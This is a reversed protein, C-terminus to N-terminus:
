CHSGSKRALEEERSAAQLRFRPAHTILVNLHNYQYETEGNGFVPDERSILYKKGIEIDQKRFVKTQYRSRQLLNSVIGHNM